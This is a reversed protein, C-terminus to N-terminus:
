HFGGGVAADFAQDLRGERADVLLDAGFSKRDIISLVSEQQPAYRSRGDSGVGFVPGVEDSHESHELCSSATATTCSAQSEDPVDRALRWVPYYEFKIFNWLPIVCVVSDSVKSIVYVITGPM